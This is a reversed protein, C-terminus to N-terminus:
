ASAQKNLCRTLLISAKGCNAAASINSANFHRQMPGGRPPRTTATAPSGASGSPTRSETGAGAADPLGDVAADIPAVHGVAEEAARGDAGDCHCPGIVIHNVRAGALGFDAEVDGIAIADVFRSIGAAGPRVGTQARRLVNATDADMGDLGSMTYTAASPSMNPGCSSRPTNRLRSPPWVQSFTRYRLGSAPATSIEISGLLGRM